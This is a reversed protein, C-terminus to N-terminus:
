IQGSEAFSFFFVFHFASLQVYATCWLQMQIKDMNEGTDPNAGVDQRLIAVQDSLKEIYAGTDAVQGGALLWPLFGSGQLFVDFANSYRVMLNHHCHVDAALVLPPLLDMHPAHPLNHARIRAHTHTHTHQANTHTLTGDAIDAILQQKSQHLVIGYARWLRQHAPFGGIPGDPDSFKGDWFLPAAMPISFAGSFQLAPLYQVVLTEDATGDKWAYVKGCAKSWGDYFAQAAAKFEDQTPMTLRTEPTSGVGYM